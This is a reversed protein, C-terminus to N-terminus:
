VMFDPNYEDPYEIKFNRLNLGTNKFICLQIAPKYDLYQEKTSEFVLRHTYKDRHDAISKIGYARIAQFNFGPVKEKLFNIIRSVTTKETVLGQSKLFELSQSFEHMHDTDGVLDFCDDSSFDCEARCIIYSNGHRVDGWWHANEIFSDWFYYGVGLWANDWKCIFPGNSEVHDINGKDKLTQYLVKVKM